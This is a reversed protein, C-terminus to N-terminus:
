EKIRFKTHIGIPFTQFSAWTTQVKLAAKLYLQQVLVFDNKIVPLVRLNDSFDILGVQVNNITTHISIVQQLGTQHKNCM